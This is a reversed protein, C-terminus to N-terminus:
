HYFKDDFNLISDCKRGDFIKIIYKPLIVVHM